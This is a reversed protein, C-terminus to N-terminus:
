AFAGLLSAGGAIESFISNTSAASAAAKAASAEGTYVTAQTQYANEQIQGQVGTLQKQVAGQQASERLIDGASGGVSFGGGSVAAKTAGLSKYVQRQTATQQIATSAKEIGVNQQALAAASTYASAEAKDGKATALDGFASGVDSIASGFGAPNIDIGTGFVNTFSDAM